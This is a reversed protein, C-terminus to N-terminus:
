KNNKDAYDFNKILEEAEPLKGENTLRKVEVFLKKFDNIGKKAEEPANKLTENITEEFIKSQLNMQKIAEMSATAQQQIDKLDM